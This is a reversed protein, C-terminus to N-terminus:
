VPELSPDVRALGSLFAHLSFEAQRHITHLAGDTTLRVRRQEVHEAVVQAQGSRPEAAPDPSAPRAEDEDTAADARGAVQRNRGDCSRDSGHLSQRVALARVWPAL